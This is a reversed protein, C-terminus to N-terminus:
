TSRLFKHYAPLPLGWGWVGGRVYWLLKWLWNSNATFSMAISPCSPLAWIHFHYRVYNIKRANIYQMLSQPTTM